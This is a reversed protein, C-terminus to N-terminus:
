SAIQTRSSSPAQMSYLLDRAYGHAQIKPLQYTLRNGIDTRWMPSNPIRLRSLRRYVRERAEQITTGLATMTLVYDGATCPMPVQVIQGNCEMPANAIMMECAHVHKWLSPKLNYIPIGTVEKRTVHSYPYDPLSLVVGIAITDLSISRSDRGMALEYLWEIPDEGGLLEIQLNFAPWGLRMTFELPWPNGKEDIICNVSVDGVYKLKHLQETLPLLVKTALKSRAVYRMVNGQEGTAVGIDGNMLKKFEFDEEFGRNWGHPGFWGAIGHEVGPIFEQLIFSGGLKGSRKWRELMFVMDDPGSSVYSLAKDATGDGSPKSVYRQMTKKVHAIATDYDNFTKSPITAIGCSQLAKQGVERNIEWQAAENSAAIIAAKPNAQRHWDLAQLYLNNDCAVILHAWGFHPRPDDTVEVFGRGINRTKETPKIALKVQHSRAGARIALDLGSSGEPDIILVRM